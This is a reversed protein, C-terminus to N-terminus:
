SEIWTVRGTALDYVGGVLGIQGSALMESIVPSEAKIDEMTQRVNAVIAAEIFAENKSDAPAEGAAPRAAELAPGLDALLATLNGLEVGDAAGKVAGCATHGLVVILKAGAARTGFEMSGLMTVDEVNGAVRGVFVDGIGQDFIIEPPVRSDLCSLIVAKPHQGGATAAVQANYDRATLRGEVFRRNGEKLEALVAEPTLAQQAEATLVATVPAPTPEAAPAAAQQPACGANLGLTTIVFGCVLIQKMTTLGGGKLKGPTGLDLLPKLDSQRLVVEPQAAGARGAGPKVVCDAAVGPFKWIAGARRAEVIGHCLRGTGPVRPSRDRAPLRLLQSWDLAGPAEPGFSGSRGRTGQSLIL